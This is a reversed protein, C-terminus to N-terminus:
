QAAIMTECLFFFFNLSRLAESGVVLIASNLFWFRHGGALNAGFESIHSVTPVFTTGFPTLGPTPTWVASQFSVAPQLTRM